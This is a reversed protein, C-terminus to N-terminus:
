NSFYLGRESLFVFPCKLSISVAILLFFHTLQALIFLDTSQGKASLSPRLLHLNCLPHSHTDFCDSSQLLLCNTQLGPLCWLSLGATSLPFRITCLLNGSHLPGPVLIWFSGAHLKQYPHRDPQLLLLRQPLGRSSRQASGAGQYRSPVLVMLRTISGNFAYLFVSLNVNM